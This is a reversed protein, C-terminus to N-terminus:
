AAGSDRVQDNVLGQSQPARAEEIYEKEAYKM